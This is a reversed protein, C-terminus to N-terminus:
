FQVFCFDSVVVSAKFLINSTCSETKQLHNWGVSSKVHLWLNVLHELTQTDFGLCSFIYLVVKITLRMIPLLSFPRLRFSVNEDQKWTCVLCWLPQNMWFLKFNYDFQSKSSSNLVSPHNWTFEPCEYFAFPRQIGKPRVGMLLSNELLVVPPAGGSWSFEATNSWLLDAAKITFGHHHLRGSQPWRTM